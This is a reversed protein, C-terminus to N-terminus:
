PLKEIVHYGGIDYGEKKFDTKRTWITATGTKIKVCTESIELVKFEIIERRQCFSCIEALYRSGVQLKDATM